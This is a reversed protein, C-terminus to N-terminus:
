NTLAYAECAYPRLNSDELACEPPTRHRAPTHRYYARKPHTYVPNLERRGSLSCRGYRAMTYRYYAHMPHMYVPDSERHGSM